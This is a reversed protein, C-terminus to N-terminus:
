RPGIEPLWEGPSGSVILASETSHPERFNDQRRAASAPWQIIIPHRCQLRSRNVSGVAPLGERLRAAGIVYRGGASRRLNWGILRRIETARSAKRLYLPGSAVFTPVTLSGISNNTRAHTRAHTRKRHVRMLSPEQVHAEYITIM